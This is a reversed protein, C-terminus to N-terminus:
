EIEFLDPNCHAGQAIISKEECIFAIRERIEELRPEIDAQTSVVRKLKM